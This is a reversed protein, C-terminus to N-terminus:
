LMEAGPGIVGAAITVAITTDGVRQHAPWRAVAKTADDTCSARADIIEGKTEEWTTPTAKAIRGASQNGSPTLSLSRVAAALGIM